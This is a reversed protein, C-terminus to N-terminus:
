GKPQKEGPQQTTPQEDTSSNRNLYGCRHQHCCFAGGIWLGAPYRDSDTKLCAASPRRHGGDGGTGPSSSGCRPADAGIIEVGGQAAQGGSPVSSAAVVSRHGGVRCSCGGLDTVGEQRDQMV